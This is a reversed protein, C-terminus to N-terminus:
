NRKYWRYYQGVEFPKIFCDMVHDTRNDKFFSAPNRISEFQDKYALEASLSRNAINLSTVSLSRPTGVKPLRYDGDEISRVMGGYVVVELLAINVNLKKNVTDFLEALLLVPSDSKIREGIDGISSEILSAVTKSHEGMNEHKIPYMMIPKTIPWDHMDIVFCGKNDVTWGKKKIYALFEKTFFPKRNKQGMQVPVSTIDNKSDYQISVMDISSVRSLNLDEFNDLTQIDLIGLVDNQEIVLNFITHYTVAKLFIELTKLKITFFRKGIDSLFLNDGGNSVDSHKTGLVAQTTQQTTTAGCNHGLNTDLLTNITMGGFCVSCIGHPDPHQCGAVVSRIKIIKGILHTSSSLIVELTKGDSGLYYKGALNKLDTSRVIWELYEQSGCDGKHIREVVMTQLQLRRAFYEADELQGKSFFLSRSASRSEILSDHLTEMGSVFGTLIPHPFPKSDIDAVYGRLGVCQIVQDSKLINARVGSCLVNDKIVPDNNMLSLIKKKVDNISEPDETVESMAMKVLPYETIELFDLIDMGVVYEDIRTVLANYLDNTINSILLSLPWLETPMELKYTNSVDRNIVTLLMNHTRANLPRLKLIHNVHHRTLLPTEPYRRHFDWFYNSYLTEKYNTEIEGDDFVLIFEGTLLDWLDDPKYALMKRALLKIM